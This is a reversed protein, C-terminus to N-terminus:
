LICKSLAVAVTMRAMTGADLLGKIPQSGTSTAIGQTSFHSVTVLGFDALPIHLPGVCQQQAILGTVCRDAKNTLYCKSGVSVLSLVRELGKAYDFTSAIALPLVNSPLRKEKKKFIADPNLSYM